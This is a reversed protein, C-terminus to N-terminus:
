RLPPMISRISILPQEDENETPPVTLYIGRKLEHVAQKRDIPFIRGNSRYYAFCENLLRYLLTELSRNFANRYEFRLYFDSPNQTEFDMMEKLDGQGKLEKIVDSNSLHVALGLSHVELFVTRTKDLISGKPYTKDFKAPRFHKFKYNEPEFHMIRTLAAFDLFEKVQWNSSSEHAEVFLIFDRETSFISQVIRNLRYRNAQRPDEDQIMQALFPLINKQSKLYDQFIDNLVALNVHGSIIEYIEYISTDEEPWIADEHTTFHGKYLDLLLNRVTDVEAELREVTENSLSTFFLSKQTTSLLPNKLIRHSIFEKFKEQNRFTVFHRVQRSLTIIALRSNGPDKIRIWVYLALNLMQHAKEVDHEFYTELRSRIANLSKEDDDYEPISMTDDLPRQVIDWFQRETLDYKGFTAYFYNRYNEYKSIDQPNKITNKGFLRILIYALDLPYKKDDIICKRNEIIKWLGFMKEIVTGDICLSTHREDQAVLGMKAPNIDLRYISNDFKLFSVNGDALKQFVTNYKLKLITIYLLDVTDIETYAGEGNILRFDLALQNILKVLFRHDKVLIHFISYENYIEDTVEEIIPPNNTVRKSFEKVFRSKLDNSDIAPLSLELQFFKDLYNSHENQLKISVAKQVYKKDLAVLFITNPFNSTNRILRLVQLVETGNLRDLDDISIIIKVELDRITKSIEEYLKTAPTRREPTRLLRSLAGTYNNEVSELLLKSYAEVKTSLKGSKVKLESQLLHFFEQIVQDESHNLFPSFPIYVLKKNRYKKHSTIEAEVTKLFSSKGSGWPGTIGIAFANEYYEDFLMPKLLEIQSNYEKSESQALPHDEMFSQKRPMIRIFLPQRILSIFAGAAILAIPIDTYAVEGVVKHFHWNSQQFLDTRIYWYILTAYVTVYYQWQSYQYKDRFVKIIFYWVATLVLMGAISQFLCLEFIERPITLSRPYYSEFFGALVICVYPSLGIITIFKLTKIDLLMERLLPFGILNNPGNNSM